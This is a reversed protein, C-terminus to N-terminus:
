SKLQERVRAYGSKLEDLLGRTAKGIDEIPGKTHTGIRSLEESVHEWKKELQDWQKKVEMSGLHMQLKLEDRAEELAQKERELSEKTDSEPM